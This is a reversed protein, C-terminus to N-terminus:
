IELHVCKCGNKKTIVRADFLAEEVFGWDDDNIYINVYLNGHEKYIKELHDILEQVKM